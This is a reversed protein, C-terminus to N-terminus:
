QAALQLAAGVAEAHLQALLALVAAQQPARVVALELVKHGDGAGAFVDVDGEPGAERVRKGGRGHRAGVEVLHAGGQLQAELRADPGAPLSADHSPSVISQEIYFCQKNCLSTCM